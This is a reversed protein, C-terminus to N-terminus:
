DKLDNLHEEIKAYVEEATLDDYSHIEYAGGDPGLVTGLM